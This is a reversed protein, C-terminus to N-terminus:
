LGDHQDRHNHHVAAAASLLMGDLIPALTDRQSTLGPVQSAEAGMSDRIRHWYEIPHKQRRRRRCRRNHVYVAVIGAVLVEPFLSAVTIVAGTAAARKVRDKERIPRPSILLNLNISPSYFARLFINTKNVAQLGLRVLLRPVFTSV